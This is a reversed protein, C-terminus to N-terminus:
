IRGLPSMSPRIHLVVISQGVLDQILREKNDCFSINLENLILKEANNFKIYSREHPEFYLSTGIDRNSTDFRPMHYLIKSPRGTGGNYSTQTFNDLRVFMSGYDVLDPTSDNIYLTQNDSNDYAYTDDLISRSNFGLISGMNADSTPLYHPAGDGVILIPTYSTYKLIDDVIETGQQQYIRTSGSISCHYMYRTDVEYCNRLEGNEIMRVNWDKSANNSSTGINRSKQTVSLSKGNQSIIVKPYMNWTTIGSPKPMNHPEAGANAHHLFSAIAYYTGATAPHTATGGEGGNGGLSSMAELIVQENKVVIRFHDFRQINTSMNYRTNASAIFGNAQSQDRWHTNGNYTDRQDDEFYYIEEMHLPRNPDINTEDRVLHGLRLRRDSAGTRECTIVYDFAQFNVSVRDLNRNNGRVRSTDNGTARILGVQWDGGYGYDANENTPDALYNRMLGQTNFEVNGNAHSIPNKDAWCVNANNPGPNDQSTCAITTKEGDDTITLDAGNRKKWDSQPTYLVYDDDKGFMKYNFVFGTFGSGTIDIEGEKDSTRVKCFSNKDDFDPHPFGEIMGRTMRTAFEGLNVYEPANQGFMAPNCQVCWGVSDEISDIPPEFTTGTTRLNVGFYQYFRSFRSIKILGDKNIKVSQVAIESNSPIEVGYKLHNRFKYSAQDEGYREYERSDLKNSLVVLTM